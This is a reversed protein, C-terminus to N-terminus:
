EIRLLRTEGAALPITAGAPLDRDHRLDLVSRAAAPLSLKVEIASDRHNILYLLWSRGRQLSRAEVQWLRRGAVDTVRIQRTVGAREFLLDLLQAYSQPELQTALLTLSGSGFKCRVIAPEDDKLRALVETNEGPKVHLIIGRGRLQLGTNGPEAGPMTIIESEVTGTKVAARRLTQDYEQELEGLETKNEASSKSIEVGAQAFFNLPRLYQDALLSEPSVILQGGQRVYDLLAQAVEPPAYKAAPVLIAKYQKAMGALLQRETIFTTGADLYLSAEYTSRLEDLYPTSTARMLKGPVQVLSTRSYLIAVERPAAALAAIEKNLRRIDLAIRLLEGIDRLPWRRSHGISSENLRPHEAAPQSPWYFLQIVSKGHLFHPLV